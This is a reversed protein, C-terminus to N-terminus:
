ATLFRVAREASGQGVLAATLKGTQYAGTDSAIRGSHAHAEAFITHGHLVWLGDQRTKTFFDAHGWLVSRDSQDEPKRAPDLAAHVCIVNGTRWRTPLDRIWAVLEKGMKTELELAAETIDELDPKPGPAEVGFSLMTERGGFDIWRLGRGAPDDIFDLLMQEHNGKLVITQARSDHLAKVYSLVEASEPGRDVFDGVLLLPQGPAEQELKGVLASLLDQRGHVDGIAAFPQDPEISSSYALVEPAPLAVEAVRDRKIFRSLLSKM